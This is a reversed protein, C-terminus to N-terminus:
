RAVITFFDRSYPALFEGPVGVQGPVVSLPTPPSARGHHRYVYGAVWLPNIDLEVARVVRAQLLADALQAATLHEGGAWILRGSATIGLASRAPDPVGGLTAGWCSQCDLSAAPRGHDILPTLNQRVSIPAPGAAPVEGHWTGIDTRGDAYTVISGLGDRLPAGLRGYSMFGGAQTSLKFAGNFAAVLRRREAGSAAPGWRWGSVGADITGSHLRLGVLQQDFSLLAVGSGGRALWAATHGRWGVLPVFGTPGTSALANGLLTLHPPPPTPKSTTTTHTTTAAPGTGTAARRSAGSGSGSTGSSASGGGCGAVLVTAAVAAAALRRAVPRPNQGQSVTRQV